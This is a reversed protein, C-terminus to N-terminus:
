TGLFMNQKGIQEKTKVQPNFWSPSDPEQRNDGKVGHFIVPHGIFLAM